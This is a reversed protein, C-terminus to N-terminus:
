LKEQHSSKVRIASDEIPYLLQVVRRRRLIKGDNIQCKSLSPGWMFLALLHLIRRKLHYFYQFKKKM